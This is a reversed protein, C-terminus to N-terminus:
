SGPFRTSPSEEEDKEGVSVYTLVTPFFSPLTKIGRGKKKSPPTQHDCHPAAWGSSGNHATVHFQLSPLYFIIDKISDDTFCCPWGQQSPNNQVVRILCLSAHLHKSASALGQDRQIEMQCTQATLLFWIAREIKMRSLWTSYLNFSTTIFWKGRLWDCQEHWQKMPFSFCLHSFHM